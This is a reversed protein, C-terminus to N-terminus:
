YAGGDVMKCVVIRGGGCGGDFGCGTGYRFIEDEVRLDDGNSRGAVVM